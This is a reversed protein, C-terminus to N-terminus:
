RPPSKIPTHVGVSKVMSAIGTPATAKSTEPAQIPSPIHSPFITRPREQVALVFLGGARVQAIKQAIWEIGPAKMGMAWVMNGWLLLRDGPNSTLRESGEAM